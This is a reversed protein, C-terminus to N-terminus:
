RYFKLQRAIVTWWTCSPSPCVSPRVSGWYYQVNKGKLYPVSFIVDMLHYFIHPEFYFLILVWTGITVVQCFWSYIFLTTFLDCDDSWLDSLLSIPSFLVDLYTGEHFSVVEFQWICVMIKDRFLNGENREM